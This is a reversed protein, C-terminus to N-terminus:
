KDNCSNLSAIKGLKNIHLVKRGLVAPFDPILLFRYARKLMITFFFFTRIFNHIIQVQRTHSFELPIKCKRM